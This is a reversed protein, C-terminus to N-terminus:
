SGQLLPQVSRSATRFTSEPSGLFGDSVSVWVIFVFPVRYLVVVYVVLVRSRAIFLISYPQLIVSRILLYKFVSTTDLKM